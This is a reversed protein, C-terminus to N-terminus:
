LILFSKYMHLKIMFIKELWHLIDFNSGSYVYYKWQTKYLQQTLYIYIKQPDFM